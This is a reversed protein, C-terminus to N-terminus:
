QAVETKHLVLVAKGKTERLIRKSLGYVAFPPIRCVTTAQFGSQSVLEETFGGRPENSTCCIFLGGPVLSMNVRALFDPAFMRGQNECLFISAVHYTRAFTAEYVDEHYFRVHDSFGSLKRRALRLMEASVDFADVTINAHDTLITRTLNGTGVGLELYRLEALDDDYPFAGRIAQHVAWYGPIDLEVRSDYDSVEGASYKFHNRVNNKNGRLSPDLHQFPREM